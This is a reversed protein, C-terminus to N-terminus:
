YERVKVMFESEDVRGSSSETTMTVKYSQDATGGSLRVRIATLGVEVTVRTLTPAVEGTTSEIVADSVSLLEGSRLWGSFDIDYDCVESPQKIYKGLIM